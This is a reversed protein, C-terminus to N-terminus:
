TGWAPEPGVVPSGHSETPTVSEFRAGRIVCVGSGPVKLPYKLGYSSCDMKPDPSAFRFYTGRTITKETEKM